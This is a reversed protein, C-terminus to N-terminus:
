NKRLEWYDVQKGTLESINKLVVPLRNIRCLSKKKGKEKGM